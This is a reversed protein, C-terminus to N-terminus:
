WNYQMRASGTMSKTTALGPWSIIPSYAATISVSVFGRVYDGSGCTGTCSVSAGGSCECQQSPPTVTLSLQDKDVSKYINSQDIVDTQIETYNGGQLVYQVSDRALDDLEMKEHIFNGYDVIGVLLVTLVPAFLAYEVMAVGRDDKRFRHLWKRM